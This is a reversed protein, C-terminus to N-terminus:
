IPPKKPLPLFASHPIISEIMGALSTIWGTQLRSLLLTNANTNSVSTMVGKSFQSEKAVKLSVDASSFAKATGTPESDKGDDSGGSQESSCHCRCTLSSLSTSCLSVKFTPILQADKPCCAFPNLLWALNSLLLSAVLLAQM